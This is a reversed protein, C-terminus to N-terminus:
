PCKTGSPFVMLWTTGLNVQWGVSLVDTSTSWWRRHKLLCFRSKLVGAWYHADAGSSEDSGGRIAERCRFVCMYGCVLQRPLAPTQPWLMDCCMAWPRLRVGSLSKKSVPFWKGGQVDKLLFWFCICLMVDIVSCVFTLIIQLKLVSRSIKELIMSAGGHIAIIYCLEHPTRSQQALKASSTNEHQRHKREPDGCRKWSSRKLLCCWVHVTEPHM